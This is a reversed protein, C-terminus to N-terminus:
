SSIEISIMYAQKRSEFSLKLFGSSFFSQFEETGRRIMLSLFLAFIGFKVIATNRRVSQSTGVFCHSSLIKTKLITKRYCGREVDM